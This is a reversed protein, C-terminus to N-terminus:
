SGTLLRRIIDEILPEDLSVDKIEGLRQMAFIVEPAASKQRDFRVQVTRTQRDAAVIEWTGGVGAPDRLLNGIPGVHMGPEVGEPM